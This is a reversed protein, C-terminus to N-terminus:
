RRRRRPFLLFLVLLAEAPEMPTARACGCGGSDTGDDDNDDDDDDDGGGGGSGDTCEGDVCSLGAPCVAGDCSDLCAGDECYTGVPCGDPCSPDICDGTDVACFLGGTCQVGSCETCGPFCVGERCVEGAGCAVNKCPDLCEGFRCAQGVPCAIGDCPTVCEGGRCVKDSPCEVDVCDPDFCRGTESHCITSAPCDFEHVIECNPVCQGNHCVEDANPCTAGEDVTGDCDNDLADCLESGGDYLQDCEIRNNRCASVGFSCVGPIGTDCSQGGGSCEVGDVSTVLDTFDNNSGGFIDEWAFYFKQETIQSDYIVVHIFSDPGAADPNYARESYYVFGDGAAVRDISACCNGSACGADREPTVIFFGVEGGLYDPESNLDLVAQSGPLDNCNLMVHLDDLSPKSGTVNYWGFADGFIATGRSVVTFTLACTPQFTEPTVSADASPNLGSRQSPICTNDNFAHWLTTECTGNMGSPCDTPSPCVGGINCVGPTLCQCAFVAPLGTPTGSDCGMESPIPAGNPQELAAASQPYLLVAAAFVRYRCWM